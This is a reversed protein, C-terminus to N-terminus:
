AIREFAYSFGMPNLFKHFIYRHGDQDIEQGDNLHANIAPVNVYYFTGFNLGGVYPQEPVPPLVPIPFPPYDTLNLSVKISGPPPNNPDYPTLNGTTLGPANEVPNQLASPVWTYGYMQRLAMTKYPSWGWVQLVVDITLGKLALVQAQTARAAPDSINMMAVIRPDLSAMYANNFATEDSANFVLQQM